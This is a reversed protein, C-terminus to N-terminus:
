QLEDVVCVLGVHGCVDVVSACCVGFDDVVICLGIVVEGVIGVVFWGEDCVDVGGGVDLV